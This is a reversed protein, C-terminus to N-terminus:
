SPLEQPLPRRRLAPATLDRRWAYALAAGAVALYVALNIGFHLLVLDVHAGAIGPNVKAGGQVHQVLKVSHEVVHYGQLAVAAALLSDGAGVRGRPRWGRARGLAVVGIGVLVVLNYVFHIWEAEVAPGAIGGRSPVGDVHVRYVQLAHEVMHFSQVALGVAFLPVVLHRLDAGEGHRQLRARFLPLTRAAARSALLLLLVALAAALAIKPLAGWGDGLEFPSRDRVLSHMYTGVPGAEGALSDHDTSARSRYNVALGWGAQSGVGAEAVRNVQNGSFECMSMDGCYLGAGAAGDILNSRAVGHSMETIAVGRMTTGTVINRSFDVRSVHSVIGEQGGEIQSNEVLTLPRNDAYRVEIGQAYESTMDSVRAGSIRASADVVEIGHLRVGSITVGELVVDEAERVTIGQVGGEVALDRVRVDDATVRLAIDVSAPVRLVAGQEGQLTVTKDVHVPGTHTGPGLRIIAGAPASAIAHRLDDGAPVHLTVPRGAIAVGAVVAVAVAAAAAARKM